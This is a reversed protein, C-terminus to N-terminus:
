FASSSAMQNIEKLDLKADLKLLTKLSDKHSKNKIFKLNDVYSSRVLAVLHSSTRVLTYRLDSLYDGAEQIIKWLKSANEKNM